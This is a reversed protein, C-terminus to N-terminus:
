EALKVTTGAMDWNINNFYTQQMRGCLSEDEKYMKTGEHCYIDQLKPCNVHDFFSKNTACPYSEISKAIVRLSNYIDDKNDINKLKAKLV